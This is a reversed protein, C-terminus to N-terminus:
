KSKWLIAGFDVSESVPHYEGTGQKTKDGQLKSQLFGPVEQAKAPQTNAPATKAVQPISAGTPVNYSANGYSQSQQGFNPTATAPASAKAPQTATAPAATPATAQPASVQPASQSGGAPAQQAQPAQNASQTAASSGGPAAGQTAASSGGPATQEQKKMADIQSAMGADLKNGQEDFWDDGQKTYRHQNGQADTVTHSNPDTGAKRDARQQDLYSTDAQGFGYSGKRMANAVKDGANQFANTYQQGKELGKMLNQSFDKKGANANEEDEPGGIADVGANYGKKAARAMGHPISAVAGAAKGVTGLGKAAKMYWPTDDGEADANALKATKAKTQTEPKAQAKPQATPTAQAPQTAPQAQAQPATAAPAQQAQAGPSANMVSDTDPSFQGPVKSAAAQPSTAAPTGAPARNNKWVAGGADGPTGQQAMQALSSAPQAQPAGTPKQSINYNAPTANTGANQPAMTPSTAPLTGPTATVKQPTAKAQPLIAQQRQAAPALQNPVVTNTPQIKQQPTVGQVANVPQTIRQPTAVAAESLFDSPKM